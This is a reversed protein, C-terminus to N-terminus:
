LFLNIQLVLLSLFETIKDIALSRLFGLTQLLDEEFQANRNAWDHWRLKWSLSAETSHDRASNKDTSNVM